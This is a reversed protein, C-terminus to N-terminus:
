HQRNRPIAPELQELEDVTERELGLEAVQTLLQASNDRAIMRDQALGALLHALVEFPAAAREINRQVLATRLKLQLCPAGQAVDRVALRPTICVHRALNTGGGGHACDAADVTLVPDGNDHRTM